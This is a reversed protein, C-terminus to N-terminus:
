VSGSSDIKGVLKLAFYRFWYRFLILNAALFSLIMGSRSFKYSNVIHIQHKLSTDM